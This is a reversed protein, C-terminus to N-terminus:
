TQAAACLWAGLLGRIHRGEGGGRISVLGLRGVELCSHLPSHLHLWIYLDQQLLLPKHGDGLSHWGCYLKARLLPQSAESLAFPILEM